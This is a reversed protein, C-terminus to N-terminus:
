DNRTGLKDITKKVWIKNREIESQTMDEWSILSYNGSAKAPIERSLNLIGEYNRTHCVYLKGNEQISAYEGEERYIRRIDKINDVLTVNVNEPLYNVFPVELFDHRETRSPIFHTHAHKISQGHAGQEVLVPNSFERSIKDSVQDILWTYEKDYTPDQAGFCPIHDKSIVLVHGPALAGKYAARVYFNETDSLLGNMRDDSNCFICEKM